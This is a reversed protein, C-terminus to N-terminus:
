RMGEMREEIKNLRELLSGIVGILQKVQQEATTGGQMLAEVRQVSQMLPNLLDPFGALALVGKELPTLLSHDTHMEFEKYGPLETVSKDVWTGPIRTQSDLLGGDRIALGAHARQIIKGTSAAEIIIGFEKQKACFKKITDAALQYGKSEAETSSAARIKQGKDMQVVLTQPHVTVTFTPDGVRGEFYYAYRIGGRMKWRKNYGTRPDFSLQDNQRVIKFKMAINHVRVPTEQVVNKEAPVEVSDEVDYIINYNTAFKKRILKSRELRAAIKHVTAKPLKSKRATQSQTNGERLFSLVRRDKETLETSIEDFTLQTM